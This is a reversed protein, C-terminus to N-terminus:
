LGKQVTVKLTGSALDLGTAAFNRLRVTVTDAATVEAYLVANAGVVQTFGVTVPDGVAAGAVTITTSQETNQAVSAPDWTKTGTLVKGPTQRSQLAAIKQNLDEQWAM